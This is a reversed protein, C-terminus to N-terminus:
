DHVITFDLPPMLRQKVALWEYRHRVIVDRVDVASQNFFPERAYHHPLILRSQRFEGSPGDHWIRERKPFAGVRQLRLRVSDRDTIGRRAGVLAVRALVPKVPM